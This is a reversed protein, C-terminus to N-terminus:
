KWARRMYGETFKQLVAFETPMGMRSVERGFRDIIVITEQDVKGSKFGYAKLERWNDSRVVRFPMKDAGPLSRYQQVLTKYFQECASCDEAEVAIVLPTDFRRESAPPTQDKLLMVTALTASACLCLAAAFLIVLSPISREAIKEFVKM